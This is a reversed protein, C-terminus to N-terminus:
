LRGSKSDKVLPLLLGSVGQFWAKQPRKESYLTNNQRQKKPDKLENERKQTEPTDPTKSDM